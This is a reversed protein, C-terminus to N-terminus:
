KRVRRAERLVQKVWDSPKQDTQLDGSQAPHRVIEAHQMADTNDKMEKSYKSFVAIKGYTRKRELNAASQM